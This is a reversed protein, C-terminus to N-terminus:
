QIHWIYSYFLNHLESWVHSVDCYQVIGPCQGFEEEIYYGDGCTIYVTAGLTGYSVGLNTTRIADNYAQIPAPLDLCDTFYSSSVSSLDM